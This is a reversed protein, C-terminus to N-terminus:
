LLEGCNAQAVPSPVDSKGSRTAVVADTDGSSCQNTKEEIVNSGQRTHTEELQPTDIRHVKVTRTIIDAEYVERENWQFSPETIEEEEVLEEEEVEEKEDNDRETAESDAAFHGLPIEVHQASAKDKIRSGSLQSYLGKAATSVAKPKLAPSVPFSFSRKPRSTPSSSFTTGTQTASNLLQQKDMLKSLSGSSSCSSRSEQSNVSCRSALLSRSAHLHHGTKEQQQQEELFYTPVTISLEDHIQNLLSRLFEQADQQQSSRFLKNKM